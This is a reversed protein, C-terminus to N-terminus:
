ATAVPAPKHHRDCPRTEALVRDLAAHLADIRQYITTPPIRFVIPSQRPTWGGRDARGIVAGKSVGFREGIVAASLEPSGEWLARMRALADPSLATM